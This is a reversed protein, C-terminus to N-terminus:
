REEARIHASLQVLMDKKHRLADCATKYTDMEKKAAFEIQMQSQYREDTITEAEIVAQAPIKEGTDTYRRRCEMYILNWVLKTNAKQVEFEHAKESFASNYRYYILTHNQLELRINTVDVAGFDEMSEQM